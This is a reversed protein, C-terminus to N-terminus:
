ALDILWRKLAFRICCLMASAALLLAAARVPAPLLALALITGAAPPHETDTAAMLLMGAGVAIAAGVDATLNASYSIGFVDHLGIGCVLGLAVGIAHGGMVRRAGSMESHPTFFVLYASSAIATVVVANALTDQSTLVVALTIAALLAQALYRGKRAFFRGDFICPRWRLAAPTEVDTRTSTGPLNM